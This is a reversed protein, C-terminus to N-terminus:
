FTRALPESFCQARNSNTCQDDIWHAVCRLAALLACCRKAKRRLVSAAASQDATQSLLLFEYMVPQYSIHLAFTAAALVPSTAPAIDQPRSQHSINQLVVHWCRPSIACSDHDEEFFTRWPLLTPFRSGCQNNCARDPLTQSTFLVCQRLTALLGFALCFSHSAKAGSARLLAFLERSLRSPFAFSRSICTVLEINKTNIKKPTIFPM